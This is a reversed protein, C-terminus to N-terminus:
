TVREMPHRTLKPLFVIGAGAIPLMHDQVADRSNQLHAAKWVLLPINWVHVECSHREVDVHTDVQGGTLAGENDLDVTCVM